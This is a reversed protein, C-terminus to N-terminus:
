ASSPMRSLTSHSSNLRTSKRDVTLSTQGYAGLSAVASTFSSLTVNTAQVTFGASATLAVGGSSATAKVEDAGAGTTNSPSLIAVATGDSRTLATAVNTVALGRVVSFTVVQGALGNGKSDALTATVTAPAASSVSTSSLSLVLTPTGPNGGTGGGGTGGGSDGFGSNGSNGGGGGCAALALLVMTSFLRQLMKM